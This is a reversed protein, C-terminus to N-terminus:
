VNEGSEPDVFQNDFYLKIDSEFDNDDITVEMRELRYWGLINDTYQRATLDLFLRDGPTLFDAPLEKGTITIAPIYRLEKYYALQAAVNQDLVTQSQVSNFQSIKERMYYGTQSPTDDQVSILQDAGFGSGLGIIRNRPLIQRFGANTVNRGLVLRLDSRVAGLESYTQFVKNHSFKFDFRGNQLNTLRQLKDKAEERAYTRDRVVGTAYQTGSVTIGMSAVAQVSNIIGTAISTAETATFTATVTRDKLLNLYGSCQVSISEDTPSIDPPSEDIQVGFLYQGDRKIRLNMQDPLLLNRSHEGISAALQQLPQLPITCNFTEADNRTMSWSRNKALHSIDALYVGGNSWVEVQYLRGM